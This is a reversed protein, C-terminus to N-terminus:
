SARAPTSRTASACSACRSPSRTPTTSTARARGQGLPRHRGQLMRPSAQVATRQMHHFVGRMGGMEEGGGARGPGGHVLMPLPSGHGTSEPAADDDLVLLRGHWPATGLIVERAFEPDETVVSGALSGKGLAALEIVDAHRHLRDAHQGPRVGRGRAARRPPHRRAGPAPDPLHVRRARRRRRGRRGTSPIASSSRPRRGRAGQALPPGRRAPRPQRARGDQDGQRGPQRRRGQGARRRGGRRRKRRARRPRVRPPDRHVEPGGQGDDRHGAPTVYRDFAQTGPAADPGLVSMNLSDAEANFRVSKAVVNPHSRLRSRPARRAPSASCTRSPSTTSCTAPAAASWSCPARPSSGPRRHDARGDARHPLRDALRAQDPEARRRHAGPGAEGAAGLRPLQVRQGAGRGRAPPHAPAPRPVRGGQRAARAPGRRAGQRQAARAQGQERLELLVGIGGDIDFKSDYLTAGTRYSLEYLEDRHERLLQGVAKALEAREHFTLERLAPGGVQAATPSRPASTSAKRPSRSSRRAPSRTTSRPAATRRPVLPRDVYSRVVAM